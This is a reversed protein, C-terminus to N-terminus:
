SYNPFGTSGPLNKSTPLTTNKVNQEDSTPQLITCIHVRQNTNNSPHSLLNPNLLNSRKGDSKFEYLPNKPVCANLTHSTLSSDTQISTIYEVNTGKVSLNSVPRSHSKRTSTVNEYILNNPILSTAIIPIRRSKTKLERSRTQFLQLRGTKPTHLNHWVIFVICVLIISVFFSTLVSQMHSRTFGTSRACSGRAGSTKINQRSMRTHNYLTLKVFKHVFKVSDPQHETSTRKRIGHFSDCITPWTCWSAHHCLRFVCSIQLEYELNELPLSNKKTRLATSLERAVQPSNVKHSNCTSKKEQSHPMEEWNLSEEDYPIIYAGYDASDADAMLVDNEHKKPIILTSASFSSSRM